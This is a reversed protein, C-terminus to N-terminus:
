PLHPPLSELYKDVLHSVTVGSTLSPSSLCGLFFCHEDGPTESISTERSCQQLPWNETSVAQNEPGLSTPCGGVVCLTRSGTVTPSREM